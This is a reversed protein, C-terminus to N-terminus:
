NEVCARVCVRACARACVCVCVCVCRCKGIFLISCVVASWWPQATSKIRSTPAAHLETVRVHVGAPAWVSPRLAGAPAAHRCHCCCLHPRHCSRASPWTTATARSAASCAYTSNAFKCARRRMHMCPSASLHTCQAAHACKERLPFMHGSGAGKSGAPSRKRRIPLTRKQSAVAVMAM